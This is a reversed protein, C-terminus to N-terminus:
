FRVHVGGLLSAEQADRQLRVFLEADRRLPRTLTLTLGLAERRRTALALSVRNRGARVVTGEFRLAQVRGGASPMEFSLTLDRQWKWAGFFTLTQRLGREAGLEFSLARQSALVVRHRLAARFLLPQDSTGTLRYALQGPGPIDWVGDFQLAQIARTRRGRQQRGYRYLLEHHVGLAWAGQLTLRDESGDAKRALFALRNHADVQWRGTLTLHQARRQQAHETRDLAVTLAHAGAALGGKFYYRQQPTRQTAHAAFVVEHAPSLLWTGDVALQHRPEAGLSSQRMLLRNLPDVAYAVQATTRRRARVPM